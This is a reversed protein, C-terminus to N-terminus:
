HRSGYWYQFESSLTQETYDVLRRLRETDDLDPSFPSRRQMYDEEIDALNGAVKVYHQFLPNCGLFDRLNGIMLSVTSTIAVWEFAREFVFPYIINVSAVTFIGFQFLLFLYFNSRAKNIHWKRQNRLRGDLVSKEDTDLDGGLRPALGEDPTHPLDRRLEPALTFLAFFYRLTFRDNFQKGSGTLGIQTIDHTQELFNANADAEPGDFPPLKARYFMSAERLREAAARYRLWRGRLDFLTQFAISIAVSGGLFPIVYYLVVRRISQPPDIVLGLVALLLTLWALVVTTVGVTRHIRKQRVAYRDFAHMRALYFQRLKDETPEGVFTEDFM